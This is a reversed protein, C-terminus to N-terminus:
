EAPPALVWVKGAQETTAKTTTIGEIKNAAPFLVTEMEGKSVFSVGINSSSSETFMEILAFRDEQGNLHATIKEVERVSSDVLTLSAQQTIASGAVELLVANLDGNSKVYLMAYQNEGVKILRLDMHSGINLPLENQVLVDSSSVFITYLYQQPNDAVVALVSQGTFPQIAEVRTFYYDNPDGINISLKKKTRIDISNDGVTLCMGYVNSQMDNYIISYYPYQDLIEFNPFGDGKAFTDLKTKSVNTIADGSVKCVIGYFDFSSQELNPVEFYLILVKTDSLKIGKAIAAMFKSTLSITKDSTIVNMGGQGIKLLSLRTESKLIENGELLDSKLETYNSVILVQSNSLPILAIISEKIDRYDQITEDYYSDRVKSFSIEKKEVIKSEDLVRLAIKNYGDKAFTYIIRGDPLQASYLTSNNIGSLDTENSYVQLTNEAGAVAQQGFEIFTNKRITGAEFSAKYEKPIGNTVDGSGGGMMDVLAAM